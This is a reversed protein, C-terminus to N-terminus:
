NFKRKKAKRIAIQKKIKKNSIRIEEPSMCFCGRRKKFLHTKDFNCRFSDRWDIWDNWYCDVFIGEEDLIRQPGFIKPYKRGSHRRDKHSLRFPTDIFVGRNNSLVVKDNLSDLIRQKLRDIKRKEKRKKAM